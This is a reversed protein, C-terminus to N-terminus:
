FLLNILLDGAILIGLKNLAPKYGAVYFVILIAGGVLTTIQALPIVVPTLHAWLSHGTSTVADWIHDGPSKVVPPNFLLDKTKDWLSPDLASTPDAIVGDKLMSVHIHPGTTHGAGPSGIAGGTLGLTDGRAVHQGYSVNVQSLHGYVWEKGDSATVRINEGLMPNESIKNIVGDSVSQAITGVPTAFDIGSHPAPHFNDIEHFKTTMRYTTMVLPAIAM